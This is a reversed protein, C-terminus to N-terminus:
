SCNLVIKGRVKRDMMEQMAKQAEKLPYQAHIHPKLKGQAHWQVLEMTNKMNDQPFQMAWSGWFVGVIQCGKLLALNLPIKPIEGAAFGVVLYRGEWGIARM